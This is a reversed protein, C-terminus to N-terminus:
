KCTACAATCTHVTKLHAHCASLMPAHRRQLRMPTKGCTDALKLARSYTSYQDPSFPSLTCVSALLDQSCTLSTIMPFMNPCLSSQQVVWCATLKTDCQLQLASQCWPLLQQQFDVLGDLLRIADIGNCAAMLGLHLCGQKLVFTHPQVFGSVMCCPVHWRNTVGIFAQLYSTAQQEIVPLQLRAKVSASLKLPLALPLRLVSQSAVLV